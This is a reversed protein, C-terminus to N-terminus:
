DIQEIRISGVGGSVDLVAREAAEANRYNMSEYAEDDRTWTGRVDIPGLGTQVNMRVPLSSPIYVVIEGVGADLDAEFGGQEPLTLVLEGVGADIDLARLIVERLAISSRGVGTDLQLSIPLERALRLEWSRDDSDTMLGPGEQESSLRLNAENGSVRYARELTEGRGTQVTGELLNPDGAPLASLDLRGVGHELAIDAATFDGLEYRITQSSAPVDSGPVGGPVQWLLALAAVTAIVVIWRYRGRTLIDVGAGILLVPWLSLVELLIRGQLWGLQMLLMVVGAAILLIPLTWRDGREENKDPGAQPTTM